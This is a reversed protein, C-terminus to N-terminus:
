PVHCLAGECRDPSRDSQFGNHISRRWSILFALLAMWAVDQHGSRISPLQPQLFIKFAHYYRWIPLPSSLPSRKPPSSPLIYLIHNNRDIRDPAQTFSVPNPSIPNHYSFYWSFAFMAGLITFVKSSLFYNGIRSGASSGTKLFTVKELSENCM